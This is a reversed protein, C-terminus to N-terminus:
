DFRSLFTEVVRYMEHRGEEFLLSHTARPFQVYYKETAGIDEFLRQTEAAPTLFRDWDGRLLLFPSTVAATEFYRGHWADFIDVAFGIPTAIPRDGAGSGDSGNGLTEGYHQVWNEVFATELCSVTGEPRDEALLRFRDNASLSFRDTSPIEPSGLLEEIIKPAIGSKKTIPAHFTLSRVKSANASAFYGAPIAGRSIAIIHVASSGTESLIWDVAAAIDAQVAEASGFVRPDVEGGEPESYRSSRGYGPLDLGYVQWGHQSLHGMWSMGDMRYESTFQNPVTAGHFFLVPHTRATDPGDQPTSIALKGGTSVSDLFHVHVPESFKEPTKDLMRPRGIDNGILSALYESPHFNSNSISIYAISSELEM